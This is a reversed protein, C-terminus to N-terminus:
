LRESFSKCRNHCFNRWCNVRFLLSEGMRVLIRITFETLHRFVASTLHLHFGALRTPFHQWRWLCESIPDSCIVFVNFRSFHGSSLMSISEDDLIEELVPYSTVQLSDIYRCWSIDVSVENCNTFFFTCFQGPNVVSRCGLARWLRTRRTLSLVAAASTALPKDFTCPLFCRLTTAMLPVDAICHCVASSRKFLSETSWAFTRYYM